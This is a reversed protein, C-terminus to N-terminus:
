SGTLMGLMAIALLYVVLVSALGWGINQTLKRM